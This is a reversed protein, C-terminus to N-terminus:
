IDINSKKLNTELRGYLKDNQAKLSEITNKLNKIQMELMAKEKFANFVAQTDERADFKEKLEEIEGLVARMKEKLQDIESTKELNLARLKSIEETKSEIASELVKNQAKLQEVLNVFSLKDSNRESELLKIQQDKIKFAEEKLFDLDRTRSAELKAIIEKLQKIENEKEFILREYSVKDSQM